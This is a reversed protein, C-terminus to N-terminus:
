SRVRGNTHGNTHPATRDLKALEAEIAALRDALDTLEVGRFVNGLLGLAAKLKLQENGKRKKLVKAIVDVADAATAQLRSMAHAFAQGRAEALQRSFEPIRMWTRLAMESIGVKKAAAKISSETLLATIAQGCKHSLKRNCGHNKM